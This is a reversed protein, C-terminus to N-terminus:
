RLTLNNTFKTVLIYGVSYSGININQRPVLNLMRILINWENDGYFM